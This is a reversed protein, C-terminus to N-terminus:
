LPSQGLHERLLCTLPQCLIQGHPTREMRWPQSMPHLKPNSSQLLNDGSPTSPGEKKQSKGVPYPIGKFKGQSLNYITVPISKAITTAPKAVPMQALTAMTTVVTPTLVNSLTPNVPLTPNTPMSQTIVRVKFRRKVPM